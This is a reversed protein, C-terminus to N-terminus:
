LTAREDRMYTLPTYVRPLGTRETAYSACFQGRSQQRRPPGRSVGAVTWRWRSAAHGGLESLEEVYPAFGEVPATADILVSVATFALGTGFPAVVRRFRLVERWFTLSVAVGAAAYLPVVVDDAHNVWSPTPVGFGWFVRGLAEHIGLVEDFALYILGM